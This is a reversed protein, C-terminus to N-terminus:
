GQRLPRHHKDTTLLPHGMSRRVPTSQLSAKTRLNNTPRTHLVQAHDQQKRPLPSRCRVSQLARNNLTQIFLHHAQHLALIRDQRHYMCLHQNPQHPPARSRNSKLRPLPLRQNVRQNSTLPRRHLTVLLHIGRFRYKWRNCQSPKRNLLRSHQLLNNRLRLHNLNFLLLPVLVLVLIVELLRLKNSSGSNNGSNGPESSRM